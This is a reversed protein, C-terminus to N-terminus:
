ESKKVRSSDFEIRGTKKLLSRADAKSLMGGKVAVVIKHLEVTSLIGIGQEDASQVLHDLEGAYAKPRRAPHHEIDYNLVLLGSITTAKPLLLDTQRKYLTTMRGLIANFEQAKPNTNITGTVETIGLFDRDIIWFDEKKIASKTKADIDEVTFGVFELTQRVVSSLREAPEVKADETATLLARVFANKKALDARQERLTEVVALTDSITREIEADKAREDPLLFEDSELWVKKSTEPFLSPVAAELSRLIEVAAQSINKVEPLVIYHPRRNSDYTTGYAAISKGSRSVIASIHYFPYIDPQATFFFSVKKIQSALGQICAHIKSITFPGGDTKVFVSVNEEAKELDLFPVGGHFLRGLGTQAGLFSVRVSPTQNLNKLANLSGPQDLLNSPNTFEKTVEAPITSNYFLIDYEYLPHPAEFPWSEEYECKALLGRDASYGANAIAQAERATFNLLLIRAMAVLFSPLASVVSYFLEKTGALRGTGASECRAPASRGISERLTLKKRNTQLL